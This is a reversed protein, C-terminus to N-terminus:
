EPALLEQMFRRDFVKDPDVEALKERMKQKNAEPLIDKSISPDFCVKLNLTLTSSHILSVALSLM